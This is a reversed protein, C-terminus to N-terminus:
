RGFNTGKLNEIFYAAGLAEPIALMQKEQSTYDPPQRNPWNELIAGLRQLDVISAVNANAAFRKVEEVIHHRERTLRLYWDAAQAGWKKNNLVSEPLRGKM